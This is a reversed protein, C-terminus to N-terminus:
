IEHNQDKIKNSEDHLTREINDSVTQLRKVEDRKGRLEEYLENQQSTLQEIDAQLM